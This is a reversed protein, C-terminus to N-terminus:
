RKKLCLNLNSMKPTKQSEKRSTVNENHNTVYTNINCKNAHDKLTNKCEKKNEHHTLNKAIQLM